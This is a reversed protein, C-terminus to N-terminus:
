KLEEIHIIDADHKEITPHIRGNHFYGLNPGLGGRFIYPYISSHLGNKRIWGTEKRNNRLIVQVKKDVFQSLDVIEERNSIFVKLTKGDDQLSLEVKNNDDWAIYSRGAQDIIEVRTVLSLEVKNYFETM